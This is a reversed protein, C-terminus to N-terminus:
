WKPMSSTDPLDKKGLLRRFVTTIIFLVITATLSLLLWLGPTTMLGILPLVMFLAVAVIQVFLLVLLVPQVWNKDKDALFRQHVTPLSASHDDALQEQTFQSLAIAYQESGVGYQQKIKQLKKETM